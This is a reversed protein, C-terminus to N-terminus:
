NEIDYFGYERFKVMLSPIDKVKLIKYIAKRHDNATFKSINFKESIEKDNKGKVLEILIERKRRPLNIVQELEFNNELLQKAVIAAPSYCNKGTLVNRVLKNWDPIETKEIICDPQIGIYKFRVLLWPNIYSSYIVLYTESLFGKVKEFLDLANTKNKLRIDSIIFQFQNKQLLEFASTFDSCSSVFFLENSLSGIISDVIVPHDEIILIRIKDTM